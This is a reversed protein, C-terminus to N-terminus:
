CCNVKNTFVSSSSSSFNCKWQQWAAQPDLSIYTNLIMSYYRYVIWTYISRHTLVDHFYFRIVPIDSHLACPKNQTHCAHICVAAIYYSYALKSLFMIEREREKGDWIRAWMLNNGHARARMCSNVVVVYTCQCQLVTASPQCIM